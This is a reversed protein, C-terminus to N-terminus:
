SAADEQKRVIGGDVVLDGGNGLLLLHEQNDRRILLLRRRNDLVLSEVVELRRSKSGVRAVAHGLGFRRAAWAAAGILGLVFVLALVARLYLSWDM